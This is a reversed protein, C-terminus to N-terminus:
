AAPGGRRTLPSGQDVPYRRGAVELTPTGPDGTKLWEFEPTQVDFGKDRLVGGAIYDVAADFGPPARNM